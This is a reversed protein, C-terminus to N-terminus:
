SHQAVFTMDLICESGPVSLFWGMRTTGSQRRVRARLPSRRESEVRLSVLSILAVLCAVGLSVLSILVVLAAVRM